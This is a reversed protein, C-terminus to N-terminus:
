EDCEALLKRFARAFEATFAATQPVTHGSAHQLCRRRRADFCGALRAGSPAHEDEKGTLHLSPVDLTGARAAFAPLAQGEPYVACLCAVARWMPARALLAPLGVLPM